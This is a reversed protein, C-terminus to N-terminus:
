TFNMFKLLLIYGLKILDQDYSSVDVGKDQIRYIRSDRSQMAWRVPELKEFLELEDISFV